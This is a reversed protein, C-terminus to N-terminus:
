QQATHLQEVQLFESTQTHVEASNELRKLIRLRDMLIVNSAKDASAWKGDAQRFCGPVFLVAQSPVAFHFRARHYNIDAEMRKQEWNNEDERAACQGLFVSWGGEFEDLKQVGVLDIKADGQPSQTQPDWLPSMEMGMFDALQPLARRLDTNFRTRRDESNAAFTIVESSTSMLHRMAEKSIEEFHAAIRQTLGQVKFTRTRSAVLLFLYLKNLESLADRPKLIGDVIEFPYSEGFAKSRFELQSLCDDAQAQIKSTIEASSLDDPYENDDLDEEGVEMLEDPSRTSNTLLSFIDTQSVPGQSDLACLIEVADALLHSRTAELRGYDIM